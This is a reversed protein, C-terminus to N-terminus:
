SGGIQKAMNFGTIRFGSTEYVHRARDNDAAVRLRIERYGATAVQTQLATLAQKGQGKGRHDPFIYFDLIFVQRAAEDPRYWLYGITQSLTTDVICRLTQGPTEPGHPLMDSIEHKAREVAEPEGCGFNSVIEAAYDPVFYDLYRRYDDESMATFDIM